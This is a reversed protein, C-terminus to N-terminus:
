NSGGRSEAWDNVLLRLERDPSVASKYLPSCPTESLRMSIAMLDNNDLHGHYGEALYTFQNLMGVLSRNTTKAYQVDNMQLLESEILSQPVFHASLVAALHGRFRDALGSAPALPMLVPLLTRENVLLAVQPKWFFATAYWNGLYTTSAGNSVVVSPKIRDLLKKTCHLVFSM